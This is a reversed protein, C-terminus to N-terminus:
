NLKQHSLTGANQPNSKIKEDLFNALQHPDLDMAIIIGKSDLLFNSPFVNIRLNKM